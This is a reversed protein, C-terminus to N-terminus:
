QMCLPPPTFSMGPLVGLELAFRRSPYDACGLWFTGSALKRGEDELMELATKSWACGLCAFGSSKCPHMQMCSAGSRSRLMGDLFADLQLKNGVTHKCRCERLGAALADLMPAAAALVYKCYM